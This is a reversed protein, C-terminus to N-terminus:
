KSISDVANPGSQEAPTPLATGPAAKETVKTNFGFRAEWKAAPPASLWKGNSDKMFLPKNRVYDHPFTKPDLDHAVKAFRQAAWYDRAVIWKAVNAYVTAAKTKDIEELRRIAPLVEGTVNHKQACGLYVSVADVNSPDQLCATACRDLALRWKGQREFCAALGILGSVNTKDIALAKEYQGEAESLRSKDLLLDAYQLRLSIDNPKEALQKALYTEKPGLSDCVKDLANHLAEDSSQSSQANDDAFAV